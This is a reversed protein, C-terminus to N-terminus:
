ESYEVPQGDLLDQANGIVVLEGAELGSVVEVQEGFHKGTKVLRLQATRNTVVFVIELQGRKVVAAQPLRLIETHRTPVSARGFLGGRLGEDIPLDIKVLFTGSGPNAAPAIEAVVGEVSGFTGIRCPIPDGEKVFGILGEPVSIELRLASPDELEVLPRGPSALDGVDAMTHTIVGAFPAKLQTYALMSRVENLSAQAVDYATRANDFEQQTVASQKLLAQFRQLDKAAQDFVAKARTHQAQLEQADLQAILQGAVVHDGLKVAMKSVRGSVKAELTARLKARVTGVVEERAQYKQATLEAVKVTITPLAKPSPPSVHEGGCAYPGGWAVVAAALGLYTSPIRM